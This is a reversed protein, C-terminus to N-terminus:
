KLPTGIVSEIYAAVLENVMRKTSILSFLQKEVIESPATEHIKRCATPEMKIAIYLSSNDIYGLDRICGCGCGRGCRTGICIPIDIGIDRQEDLVLHYGENIATDEDSFKLEIYKGRCVITIAVYDKYSTMKYLPGITTIGSIITPLSLLRCLERSIQAM